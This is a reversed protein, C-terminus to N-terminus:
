ARRDDPRVSVAPRGGIRSLFGTRELSERVRAVASSPRSRSSTSTREPPVAHGTVSSGPPVACVDRQAKSERRPGAVPGLPCTDRCRPCELETDCAHHNRSGGQPVAAVLARVIDARWAAMRGLLLDRERANDTLPRPASSSGAPRPTAASSRSCTAACPRCCTTTACRRSTASPTSWSSRRPPGALGHRDGGRPQARRGALASSPWATTSRSSASGTPPRPPARAPTAPPSRPRSRTRASRAAPRTRASSRPSAAGVLMWDWRSRDQDLLLVPAGDPGIRARTRSAQLEMLAVLGHVEAEDPLLEALIRGLRLAEEILEPRM